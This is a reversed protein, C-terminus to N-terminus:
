NETSLNGERRPDEPAAGRLRHRAGADARLQGRGLPGSRSFVLLNSKRLSQQEEFIKLFTRLHEITNKSPSPGSEELEARKKAPCVMSVAQVARLLWQLQDPPSRQLWHGLPTMAFAEDMAGPVTDVPEILGFLVGRWHRSQLVPEATSLNPSQAAELASPDLGEEDGEDDEEEDKDDKDDKGEDEEMPHRMVDGPNGRGDCAQHLSFTLKGAELDHSLGYSYGEPPRLADAAYLERKLAPLPSAPAAAYGGNGVTSLAGGVAAELWSPGTAGPLLSALRWPLLIVPSM